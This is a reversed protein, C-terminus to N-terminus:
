KMYFMSLSKSDRCPHTNRMSTWHDWFDCTGHWTVVPTLHPWVSAKVLFRMKELAFRIKFIETCFHWPENLPVLYFHYVYWWSPLYPNHFIKYFLTQHVRFIIDAICSTCTTKLEKQRKIFVRTLILVGGLKAIKENKSFTVFYFGRGM